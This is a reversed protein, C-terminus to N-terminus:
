TAGRRSVAPRPVELGGYALQLCLSGPLFRGISKAIDHLFVPKRCRAFSSVSNHFCGGPGRFWGKGCLLPWMSDRKVFLLFFSPTMLQGM